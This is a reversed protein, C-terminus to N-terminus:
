FRSIPPPTSRSATRNTPSRPAAGTMSSASSPPATSRICRTFSATAAAGPGQRGPKVRLSWPLREVQDKRTEIVIRLLDYTEALARLDEVSIPEFSRPKTAINYGSPFDFARGAVEKPAIPALPALPGFWGSATPRGTESMFQAQGYAVAFSQPSLSWSPLGAGRETDSM